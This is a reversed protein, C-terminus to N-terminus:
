AQPRGTDKFREARSIINASGDGPQMAPELEIFAMKLNLAIPKFDPTIVPTNLLPSRNIDVSKLVSVLPHGDWYVQPAYPGDPTGNPVVAEFYWLPPHNMTLLSETGAIPFMNSQFTLAIANAQDAQAKTKCIFNVNFGHTRRAGPSLITEFHDFRIVSGGTFFSNALEQTATIQQGMMGSLNRTEILNVNLSGGATYDQTNLTTHERPYPIYIRGYASNRVAARTRNKNFTSYDAVYFAMWVPIENFYPDGSPPYQYTFAM